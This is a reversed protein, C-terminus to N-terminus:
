SRQPEPSRSAGGQDVEATEEGPVDPALPEGDAPGIDPMDLGTGEKRARRREERKIEKERQKEKRRLEKQRKLVGPRSKLDAEL